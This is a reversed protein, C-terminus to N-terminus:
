FFSLCTLMVYGIVQVSGDNKGTPGDLEIGAWIGQAFETPGLFRVIGQKGGSVIVREGIDYRFM